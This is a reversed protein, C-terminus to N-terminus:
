QWRSFTSPPSLFNSPLPPPLTHIVQGTDPDARWGNEAARHAESARFVALEAAKQTEESMRFVIYEVVTPSPEVGEDSSLKTDM